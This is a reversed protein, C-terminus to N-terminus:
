GDGRRKRQRTPSPHPATPPPSMITPQALLYRSWLDALWSQYHDASWGREGTLLVYLEASNTAWIADAAEDISLEARLAGTAHLDAALKRMNRARRRSIELWVQHAEPETAAADRLALLLPALRTHIDGVARAYLVLKRHPDPEARIAHVYDRDEAIVARDAGSIAQEVLERLLLPKRGVLQYVTDTHVDAQRAIDAITTARYGRALILARAAEVIHQRTAASATQRAANDYDRRKVPRAVGVM